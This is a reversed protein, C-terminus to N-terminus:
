IGLSKSVSLLSEINDKIYGDKAKESKWRGHRKFLRDSVQSNAAASAGGARFSHLGYDEKRLGISQFASLVIERARTYSLQASNRFKHIGESSFFAMARFIYDECDAQFGALSFYRRCLEVPCTSKHTQAIVVWAGDRYVDTKSREIFIRM